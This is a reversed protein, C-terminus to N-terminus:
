FGGSVNSSANVTHSVASFRKRHIQGFKSFFDKIFFKTNQPTYFIESTVKSDELVLLLFVLDIHEFHDFDVTFVVARFWYM